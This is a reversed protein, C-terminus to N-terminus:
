RIHERWTTIAAAVEQGWLAFIQPGPHFGDEAMHDAVNPLDLTVYSLTEDRACMRKLARDFRDAERGLVLRLPQPLLPFRGIPPLGTMVVHQAGTRVRLTNILRRQQRLWVLRPVLHTVDNAGLGLVAIDYTQDHPIMDIADRSTAGIRAILHWHIAVGKPLARCLAGPLAQDLDGVGVGAMSSDGLLLVRLPQGKGCTGHKPGAAEPLSAARKRTMLGQLVLLPALALRLILDFILAM